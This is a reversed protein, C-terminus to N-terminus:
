RRCAVGPKGGLTSLDEQTLPTKESLLSACSFEIRVEWTQTEASYRDNLVRTLDRGVM